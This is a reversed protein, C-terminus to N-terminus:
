KIETKILKRQLQTHEFKANTVNLYVTKLFKQMETHLMKYYYNSKNCFHYTFVTSGNSDKVYEKM